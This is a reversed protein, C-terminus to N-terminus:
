VACQKAGKMRTENLENECDEVNMLFKECFRSKQIRGAPPKYYGEKALEDGLARIVQYAKSESVGLLIQVDEVRYFQM